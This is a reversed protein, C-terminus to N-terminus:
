TLVIQQVLTLANVLLELAVRVLKNQAHHPKARHRQVLSHAMRIKAISRLPNPARKAM